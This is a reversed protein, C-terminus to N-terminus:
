ATVLRRFTQRRRLIAASNLSQTCRLTSDVDASRRYWEGPAFYFFLLWLTATKKCRLTRHKVPVAACTKYLRDHRIYIHPRRDTASLMM